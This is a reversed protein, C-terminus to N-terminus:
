RDKNQPAARIIWRAAFLWWDSGRKEIRAFLEKSPPTSKLISPDVKFETMGAPLIGEIEGHKVTLTGTELSYSVIQGRLAYGRTAEDSDPCTHCPNRRADETAPAITLLRTIIQSTEGEGVTYALLLQAPKGDFDKVIALLQSPQGAPLVALLVPVSLSGGPSIRRLWLSTENQNYHEPWSVFVTGDALLVLDPTGSPRRDEIRVPMLFHDHSNPQVSLQISPDQPAPDFWAKATRGATKVIVDGSDGRQHVPTPNEPTTASPTRWSRTSPDFFAQTLGPQNESSATKWNLVLRSGVSLFQPSHAGVSAPSPILENDLTLVPSASAARLPALVLCVALIAVCRLM